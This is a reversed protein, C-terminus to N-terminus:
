WPIMEHAQRDALKIGMPFPMGMLLGLPLMALVVLPVKLYTPIAIFRHIFVPLLLIYLVLLISLSVLIVGLWRNRTDAPFLGTIYSGAGSFVLLGFLTVSLAYIPHGLFLLLKQMLPVEVMMFGVGLCTFYLLLAWKGRSQRLAERRFTWLPGVIFLLCLVTIILMLSGLVFVANDNFALGALGVVGFFLAKDDVALSAARVRPRLVDGLRLMHFFFPKDDVPPELNYPLHRYFMEDGDSDFLDQIVPHVSGYPSAVMQFSMQRCLKHLASLEERTFESKKLLVTGMHLKVVNRIVVLHNRPNKVGSAKWAEYGLAVLRLTQGGEPPFLRSVTLIGDETLHDYYEQFAEMTYLNNETLVFAGAATAAWSDVLSAQIIDFKDRSRAIYSRGEDVVVDVDNRDYLHGSFEAFDEKVIEVVSPNVEVGHVPKMDFSLATLVDKGGGPGIILARGGRKLYYAISTVDYKLAEVSALDGDFRYMPTRAHADISITMSVPQPGLHARSPSWGATPKDDPPKTLVVRSFPNWKELLVGEERQGKVFEVKLANAGSNAILLALLTACLALSGYQLTRWGAASAFKWAAAAALIAAVIIASPGTLVFLTPIVLFCGVGAGFLDAFYLRSVHRSFQTLVLSICLGGFFFPVASVLYVQSLLLFSKPSFSPVFRTHLLAFLALVTTASFALASVTLRRLTNEASRTPAFLYVYIGSVGMGLLAISIAMFAFHYWLTVSFIRTLVLELMLTSMAVLAVGIYVHRNLHNTSM